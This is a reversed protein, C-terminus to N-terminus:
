GDDAGDCRVMAHPEANRTIAAANAGFTWKATESRKEGSAACRGM